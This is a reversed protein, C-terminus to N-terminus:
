VIEIQVRDITKGFLGAYGDQNNSTQNDKQWSYYNKNLPSVRYKATKDGELIVEIADIPKGNGAYGNKSDYIDFGTVYPLWGGGKIHVRYKVSGCTTKLALGTIAKGKIGAFDEFNRVTPLWKGDTQVCYIADQTGLKSEYSGIVNPINSIACIDRIQSKLGNKRVCYHCHSGFSYGTNGEIGLLTGVAVKDGAKVKIESLHGFYYKDASGNQKIRVYLGFGQKHNLANEWGAKEVVGDITSYINKSDVGVIDLGDHATGKYQQSVRFKGKYPALMINRRKM